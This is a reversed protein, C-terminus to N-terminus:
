GRCMTGNNLFDFHRSSGHCGTGPLSVPLTRASEEQLLPARAFSAPEVSPL